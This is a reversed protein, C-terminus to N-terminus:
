TYWELLGERCDSCVWFEKVQCEFVEEVRLRCTERQKSVGHWVRWAEWGKGSVSRFTSRQWFHGREIELIQRGFDQTLELFRWNELCNEWNCVMRWSNCKLAVDEYRHHDIHHCLRYSHAHGLGDVQFHQFCMLKWVQLWVILITSYISQIKQIHHHKSMKLLRKLQLCGARRLTLWNESCPAWGSCVESILSVMNLAMEGRQGVFM